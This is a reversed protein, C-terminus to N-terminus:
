WASPVTVDSQCLGGLQHVKTALARIAGRHNLVLGIYRVGDDPLAAIVAEADAMQPVCAPNVFSAVEVRHAGAGAARAILAVKDAVSVIRDENQLGDRPGVEVIEVERVM